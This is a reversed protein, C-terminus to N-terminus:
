SRSSSSSHRRQAARRLPPRRVVLAQSRTRRPRCRPSPRLQGAAVVIAARNSPQFAASAAAPSGVLAPRGTQQVRCSHTCATRVSVTESPRSGRELSYGRAPVTSRGDYGVRCFNRPASQCDIRAAARAQAILPTPATGTRPLDDRLDAASAPGRGGPQASVSGRSAHRCRPHLCSCGTAAHIRAASERGPIVGTAAIAARACSTM